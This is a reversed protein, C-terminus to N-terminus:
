NEWKREKVADGKEGKEREVQLKQLGGGWVWGSGVRGAGQAGGGVLRESTSQQPTSKLLQKGRLRMPSM